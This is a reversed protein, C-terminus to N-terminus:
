NKLYSGGATFELKGGDRKALFDSIPFKKGTQCFDFSRGRNELLRQGGPAPNGHRSM